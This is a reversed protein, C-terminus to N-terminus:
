RVKKERWRARHPFSRGGGLAMREPDMFCYPDRRHFMDLGCGSAVGLCGGCVNRLPCPWCQKCGRRYRKALPSNYLEIFAAERISGLLSPFRRCAHVEGGPRLAMVNFAAGCGFKTCGGTFSGEQRYRLISFLNEAVWLVPNTRAARLYQRLFQAFRPPNPLREVAGRGVPSLRSFILRDARGRLLRGLPLVQDVNERTLTLSVVSRVRADRLWDLFRMARAFDGAGRLRDHHAPLGELGIYFSAPPQIALVADLDRASTPTGLISARFGAASVTRYLACFGPQHLPNGGSLSIQGRVRRRRCFAQLSEVVRESAQQDLAPQQLSRRREDTLHWQLTFTETKRGCILRDRLVATERSGTEPGGPGSRTYAPSGSRTGRHSLSSGVIADPEELTLRLRRIIGFVLGRAGPPCTEGREAGRVHRSANKDARMCLNQRGPSALLRLCSTVTM